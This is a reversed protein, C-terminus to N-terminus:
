IDLMSRHVHALITEKPSVIVDILQDHEGVPIEPVIQFELCFSVTRIRAPHVPYSVLTSLFRDYFGGGRGLRAGSRDWALGPVIVVVNHQTIEELRLVPVSPSPEQIGFPGTQVPYATSDIRHFVLDRGRVRPLGLIKCDRVAARVLATTDPERKMSAFALICGADQYWGSELFEPIGHTDLVSFDATELRRRIDHRLAEKADTRNM